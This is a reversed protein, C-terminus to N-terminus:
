NHARMRDLLCHFATEGNRSRICPDAGARLLIRLVDFDRCRAAAKMLVSVGDRDRANANAGAKILLHIIDLGAGSECAKMLLTEGGYISDPDVGFKLITDVMRADGNVVAEALLETLKPGIAGLSAGKDKLFIAMEANGSRIAMELPRLGNPLKEDIRDPDVRLMSGVTRIDGSGISSQFLYPDFLPIEAKLCQKDPQPGILESVIYKIADIPRRRNAMKFMTSGVNTFCTDWGRPLANPVETIVDVKADGRNSVAIFSTEVSIVGAALSESVLLSRIKGKGVVPRNESYIAESPGTGEFGMAELIRGVEENGNGSGLLAELRRVRAGGCLRRVSISGGGTIWLDALLNGESDKLMFKGPDKLGEILGCAFVPKESPLDGLEIFVKSDKEGATLFGVADFIKKGEAELTIGMVFPRSWARFIEELALEMEDEEPDSTLFYAEGRGRAAIGSALPANPASDICIISVKRSGTGKTHEEVLRFIRESDSVQADTVILVHRALNKGTKPMRLAQELAVGLETGGNPDVNELFDLCQSLVKRSAPSPKDFLWETRNNFYGINLHDRNDMKKLFGKISGIAALWKPGSMSGSRDLLIVTERGHVELGKASLPSEPPVAMAVFWTRDGGRYHSVQLAARGAERILPFRVVCDQDPYVDDLTLQYGDEIAETRVLFTESEPEGVGRCTLNMGFRYGPDWASTLPNKKRGRKGEDGRTYRPGITLPFRFELGELRPRMWLSFTTEVKIEEGPVIGSVHLTFVDDGEKEILVAQDGEERAKEYTEQATQREVLKAEIRIDGFSIAVDHVAGDGPLPFRYVAEIVKNGSTVGSFVQSLILSALPGDINGYLRTEKLPIYSGDGGEQDIIMMTSAEFLRGTNFYGKDFM